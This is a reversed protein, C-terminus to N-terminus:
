PVVLAGFLLIRALEFHKFKTQEVVRQVVRSHHAADRLVPFQFGAIHRNLVLNIAKNTYKKKGDKLLYCERFNVDAGHDLLAEISCFKKLHDSSAITLPSETRSQYKSGRFSPCSYTVIGNPNAGLELLKITLADTELRRISASLVSDGFYSITGEIDAGRAFLFELAMCSLDQIKEASSIIDPIDSSQFEEAYHRAWFTHDRAWFINPKHKYKLRFQGEAQQLWYKHCQESKQVASIVFFWFDGLSAERKSPDFLSGSILSNLENSIESAIRANKESDEEYKPM